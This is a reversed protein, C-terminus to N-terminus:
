VKKNNLLNKWNYSPEFYIKKVESDSIINIEEFNKISGIPYDKSNIACSLVNIKEPDYGMIKTAIIDVAIPDFGAIITNAIRPSPMLPSDKEGGIVGDIFTLIKRQKSKRMIGLKNAYLVIKNIDVISKKLTHNIPNSGKIAINYNTFRKRIILRSSNTKPIEWISKIIMDFYNIKEYEDIKETYHPIWSRPVTIGIMNKLCLSNGTKKHSKMKPINIIVDAELIVKSIGYIHKGINHMTSPDKGSAFLQTSRLSEYNKTSDFESQEKLDVEVYGPFQSNYKLKWLGIEFNKFEIKFKAHAVVNRLDLITIPIYQKSTLFDVIQQIGNNKIVNEFDTIDIPGDAIIIKGKGKLAIIIYDLIPRIISGHTVAAEFQDHTLLYTDVVLNPKVLVCDTPKIIDKFPNWEKSGFNNKDLNLKYLTDRIAEYVYNKRSIDKKEFPYEPYTDHPHFPLENPYIIENKQIVVVDNNM